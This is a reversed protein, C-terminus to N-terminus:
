KHFFTAHVAILAEKLNEAPVMCAVTTSSNSRPPAPVPIGVANLADLLMTDVNNLSRLGRGVVAITSLGTIPEVATISGSTLEAALEDTMIEMARDVDAGRLGFSGHEPSAMFIDVGQRSLANFVKDFDDAHGGSIRIMATPTMSSVGRAGDAPASSGEAIVTGPASPNFTNKIIIPISRNFVPYITPPYVVKAGFNCLEMAEAFSLRDIVEADSVIRPDATMFGDVDTWIELVEANLEAAIIAATYDSGGRGLNTIKGSEDRSIFGPVVVTHARKTAPLLKEAILASTAESDLVHKGFRNHTRIFDLSNCLIAESLMRSVIVCSMREGYSVILDLSRDTIEGLLEVAGYLTALESLLASVINKVELNKDSDSIVGDIVNHHRASIEAFTQLYSRDGAAARRATDILRDTLGGLASVTVICDSQQGEVIAKVNRLSDVTGVSTGGFKLVKM